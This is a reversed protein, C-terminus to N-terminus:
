TTVDGIVLSGTIPFEMTGLNDLRAKGLCLRSGRAAVQNSASLLFVLSETVEDGEQGRERRKEEVGVRGRTQEEEEGRGMVEGRRGAMGM